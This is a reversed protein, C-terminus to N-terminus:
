KIRGAEKLGSCTNPHSAELVEEGTPVLAGRSAGKSPDLVTGHSPVEEFVFIAKKPGESSRSCDLWTHPGRRSKKRGLSTAPASRGGRHPM